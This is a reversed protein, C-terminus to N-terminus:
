QSDSSLSKNMDGGITVDYYSNKKFSIPQIRQFLTSIAQYSLDSDRKNRRRVGRPYSCVTYRKCRALPKM